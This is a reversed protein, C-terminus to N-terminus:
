RAADKPIPIASWIDAKWASEAMKAQGSLSPHFYDVSSLDRVTFNSESLLSANFTCFLRGSAAGRTQIDACGQKLASDYQSRYYEAEAMSSPSNTGLYPPCRNAPPEALNARAAPNAQTIAQFHLFDPLALILIRSGPPLGSELIELASTLGQGFKDPETKPDDCLDNTGLEFTVYAIGGPPLKQAAAVVIGAQRPADSMKQGSKAPDAIAPAPGIAEFRERLSFVGDGRVNGVAWSFGPHDLKYAPSVSYAKTYSDGITALLSPLIPGRTPTPSAAANETPSVAPSPSSAATPTAAPASPMSAAPEASRAASTSGCAAVGACALAMTAAIALIRAAVATQPILKM